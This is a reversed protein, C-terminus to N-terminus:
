GCTPWSIVPCCHQSFTPPRDGLATHLHRTAQLNFMRDHRWTHTKALKVTIPLRNLTLAHHGEGFQGRHGGIRRLREGIPQSQRYSGIQGRKLPEERSCV